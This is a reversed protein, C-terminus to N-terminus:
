PEPIRFVLADQRQHCIWLEKESYAVTAAIERGLQAIKERISEDADQATRKFLIRIVVTREEYIRDGFFAGDVEYLSFGDIPLPQTQGEQRSTLKARLLRYLESMHELKKPVYIEVCEMQMSEAEM